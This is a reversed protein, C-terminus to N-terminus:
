SMQFVLIELDVVTMPIINSQITVVIDCVCIPFNTM